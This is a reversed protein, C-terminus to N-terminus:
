KFHLKHDPSEIRLTSLFYPQKTKKNDLLHTGKKM